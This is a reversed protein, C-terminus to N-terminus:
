EAPILDDEGTLERLLHIFPKECNYGSKTSLEYCPFGFKHCTIIPDRPIRDERDCKNGAIIIPGCMYYNIDRRYNRVAEYSLESAADYMVIVADTGFYCAHRLKASLADSVEWLNLVVKGASTNFDCSSVSLRTTPHYEKLFEGGCHRAIFSTKGAGTAGVLLVNYEKVEAMVQKEKRRLVSNGNYKM